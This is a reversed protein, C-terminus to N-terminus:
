RQVMEIEIAGAIVHDPAHLVALVIAGASALDGLIHLIEEASQPDLDATAEDAIVLSPNISLARAIAIRRIQGGSLAAVKEGSGGIQTDLGASLQDLKLGVRGLVKEIEVDSVKENLFQFLQRVTGSILVPSQPIWGIERRLNDREIESAMVTNIKLHSSDGYGLFSNLFTTKGLGSGGRIIVVDGSKVAASALEGGGFPSSWQSWQVQVIAEIPTSGNDLTGPNTKQIENLESLAATGDASAHFLSAANRLPFYVEPALVLIALAPLFNISGSVLRIGISVAILAVSITAALELVLASLFSVRLVKMTEETYRDGMERIRLSQSKVRSFLALTHIGRLSDEFYKGLVGLSQWKKSVAEETYKGILAGFLPILPITFLAILGSIRDQIFLAAIVAIPTIVAGFLQPLFRALYIDLSNGGKILLTSLHTSPTGALVEPSDVISSRLANKLASAEFSAWRDFSSIYFARFFWLLAVQSIRSSIDPSSDILAVILHAILFAHTIVLATNILAVILAGFFLRRSSGMSLLLRLDKSKM